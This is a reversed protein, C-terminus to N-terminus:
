GTAQESEPRDIGRRIIAQLQEVSLDRIAAVVDPDTIVTTRDGTKIAINRQVPSADSTQAVDVANLASQVQEATVGLATLAHSAQSNADALMESLLHGTTVPSEGARLVARELAPRLAPSHLDPRPMDHSATAGALLESLRNSLANASIGLVPDLSRGSAEAQRQVGFFIHETGIYGHGLAMAARLSQELCKKGEASFPVKNVKKASPKVEYLTVIRQRLAAEDVGAQTMAVAALGEGDRLGLLLHEPKIQAHGMDRANDQALVIVRRAKDTFREFM